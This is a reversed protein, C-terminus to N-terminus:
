VENTRRNNVLSLIVYILIIIPIAAWLLLAFLVLAIGMFSYVIKNDAWKKSKLKFSFMRVPSVMLWSFLFTLFLLVYSNLVIPSLNLVDSQFVFNDNALILPLSAFFIGNSPSPLGVFSNTQTTDVNFKALRYAAGIAIFVPLLSIVPYGRFYFEYMWNQHSHLLLVHVISAPLVGFTIVDALSDLEKGIPSSHHVARAVMGDFVDFLAGIFVLAGASIVDGNFCCIVGFFGCSLNAMTMLNPLYKEVRIV